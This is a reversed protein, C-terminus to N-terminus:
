RLLALAANSKQNRESKIKIHRQDWEGGWVGLRGTSSYLSLSNVWECWFGVALPLSLLWPITINNGSNRINEEKMKRFGKLNWLVLWGSIELRVELPMYKTSELYPKARWSYLGKRTATDTDLITEWHSARASHLLPTTTRDYLNLLNWDIHYTIHLHVAYWYHTLLM